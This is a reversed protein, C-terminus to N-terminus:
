KVKKPAPAPAPAPKEPPAVPQAAEAPSDCWAGELAQLEAESKVLEADATYLGNGLLKGTGRKYVFKPFAM